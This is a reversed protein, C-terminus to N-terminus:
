KAIVAISSHAAIVDGAADRITVTVPFVGAALYRHSGAIQYRGNGVRKVTGPTTGSQDGWDITAVFQVPRTHPDSFRAISGRFTRELSTRGHLGSSRFPGISSPAPPSTVTVQTTVTNANPSKSGPEAIMVTVAYVGPAGYTHTAEIDFVSGDEIPVVQKLTQGDGFSIQARWQTGPAGSPDSVTYTAFIANTIPVGAVASIPAGASPTIGGARLVRDELVEIMRSPSGGGRRGGPQRAIWSM